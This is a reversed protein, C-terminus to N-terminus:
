IATGSRPRSASPADTVPVMVTAAEALSSRATVFTSNRRSPATCDVSVVEGYEHLQFLTVAVFPACVSCVRAYSAAFLVPVDAITLTVVLLSVTAGEVDIVEGAFPAVNDPVTATLASPLSLTPTVRM